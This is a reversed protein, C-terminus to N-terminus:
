RSALWAGGVITAIAISVGAAILIIRGTSRDSEHTPVEKTILEIGNCGPLDKYIKAYCEEFKYDRLNKGPALQVKLSFTGNRGMRISLLIVGAPLIGQVGEWFEDNFAERGRGGRVM